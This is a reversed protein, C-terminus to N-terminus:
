IGPDGPSQAPLANGMGYVSVRRENQMSLLLAQYNNEFVDLASDRAYRVYEMLLTRPMGDVTYDAEAGYKQNIYVMGSAILGSIKADTAQDEWTIDLYNKVDALLGQPLDNRDAM